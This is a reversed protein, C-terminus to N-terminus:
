EANWNRRANVGPISFMRDRSRFFEDALEHGAKEVLYEQHERDKRISECLADINANFVESKEYGHRHTDNRYLWPIILRMEDEYKFYRIESYRGDGLVRILRYTPGYRPHEAWWEVRLLPDIQKLADMFWEPPVKESTVRPDKHYKVEM